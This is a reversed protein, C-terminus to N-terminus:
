RSWHDSFHEVPKELVRTCFSKLKQHTSIVEKTDRAGRATPNPPRIWVCNKGDFTTSGSIIAPFEKKAKRLVYGIARQTPTLCENVFFNAPKKKRASALVDVKTSRRCFKVIISRQDSNSSGSRTGLRHTVSIEQERVNLNVQRLLLDRVISSCDEDNNAPPITSGSIILSDRREYAENEEIREELADVRKKLLDNQLKLASVKEEKEAVAALFENKMDTIEKKMNFEFTQFFSVLAPILAKCDKQTVNLDTLINIGEM